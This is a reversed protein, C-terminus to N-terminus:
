DVVMPFSVSLVYLPFWHKHVLSSPHTLVGLRSKELFFFFFFDKRIQPIEWLFVIVVGFVFYNKNRKVWLFTQKNHSTCEFVGFWWVPSPPCVTFTSRIRPRDSQLLCAGSEWSAEVFHVFGGLKARLVCYVWKWLMCIQGKILFLMGLQVSLTKKSGFSSSM